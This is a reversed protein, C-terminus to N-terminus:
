FIDEKRNLFGAAVLLPNKNESSQLLQLKRDGLNYAVM